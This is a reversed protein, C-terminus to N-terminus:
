TEKRNPINNPDGNQQNRERDIDVSGEGKLITAKYYIKIENLEPTRMNNKKLLLTTARKQGM